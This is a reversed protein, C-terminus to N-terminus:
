NKVCRAPFANARSANYLSVSPNPENMGRAVAEGGPIATSTWFMSAPIRSGTFAWLSNFYFLGNMRALFGSPNNPDKLYAGAIGIGLSVDILQEWEASTPLHWGPPCFDQYIGAESYEVLEDWQYFGGSSSCGEPLDNPCYKEHLCNDTMRNGGSVFTGYDLNVAMWCRANAGSGVLLIPYSKGDRRDVITGPCPDGANSSYVKVSQSKQDFCGAANTYRYTVPHGTGAPSGTVAADGPNFVYLGPSVETVGTGSYVGGTGVPSGGKLIVPRGNKVTSLINCPNFGVTPKVKVMITLLASAAGTGCGNSPLVSLQGSTATGDFDITVAPGNPQLTAGSGTYSWVYQTANAVPPISYSLGTSVQCVEAGGSTAITGADGPLPNVTVGMISSAAAPCEANFGSVTFSGSSSGIPFICTIANTTAGSVITVGPPVTWQYATANAVPAISWTLQQPGQCLSNLGTIPGNAGPSPHIVPTLSSPAGDGCYTSRGFVSVTGPSASAPFSVTVSPTNAGATVTAGPPFSWVYIDAGPIAPVSFVVGSVPTCIVPQSCTIAGAADPIAHVEASLSSAAGANCETNFGNVLVLGSLASSTTLCTITNSSAGSIVTVGSPVTWQYSGANAIPTVTWTVQQGPCLHRPGSIPGAADPAHRIVPIFNAAMGDGCFFNRGFVTVPGASVASAFSVTISNTGSGSTLTAGAPLSWIYSDAFSLAPVSFVVGTMPACIVPLNCTVPGAPGPIEGVDVSASATVSLGCADTITVTYEHHGPPPSPTISSTTDGSSWSFHYTPVPYLPQGGTIVPTLTQPQGQCSVSSQLTASLPNNDKIIVITESIVPGNCTTNTIRLIVTKDPEFPNPDPLPHITISASTQGPPIVISDPIPSYDIGMLATGLIQFKTITVKPEPLPLTFHVIADNCGKVAYPGINPTYNTSTAVVNSSFSSKELFVGSDFISDQADAVALKIHHPACPIVNYTATFVYTFGDFVIDKGAVEPCEQWVVPLNEKRNCWNTPRHDCINNITVPTTDGPMLAINVSNNSYPGSISPGSLFFGFPDNYPSACFDYFEESAFVYRFSLKDSEPIFDFEIVARDWTAHGCLSDLDPDGRANFSTSAHFTGPGPVQAVLGSSMIIGETMGLCVASTDTASFFGVQPSHITDFSGNFTVNSITVGQGILYNQVLQQPTIGPSSAPTV